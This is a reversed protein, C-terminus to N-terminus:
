GRATNTCYGPLPALAAVALKQGVSRNRSDTFSRASPSTFHPQECCSVHCPQPQRPWSLNTVWTSARRRKPKVNWLGITNHLSSVHVANQKLFKNYNLLLFPVAIAACVQVPGSPELLSLSGTKWSLRCMFTTLNDARRVPRRLGWSINRSSMETLQQALGLGSPNHSHFIGTVGDPLSGAVKRSTACHRM